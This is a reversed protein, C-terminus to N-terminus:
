IKRVYLEGFSVTYYRGNRIITDGTSYVKIGLGKLKEVIEDAIKQILIDIDGKDIDLGM